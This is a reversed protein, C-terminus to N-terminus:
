AADEAEDDSLTGDDSLAAHKIRCVDPLACYQCTKPSAPAVDARGDIFEQALTQLSKQWFRLQESWDAAQEHAVPNLAYDELENDGVGVWRATDFRVQAFLVGAVSGPKENELALAYLPLQPQEPREGLWANASNNQGSKYDVIAVRGDVLQDIRDVRLRLELGAFVFQREQELAVIEVDARAKELELWHVLV